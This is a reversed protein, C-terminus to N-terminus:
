KKPIAVPPSVVTTPSKTTSSTAANPKPPEEKKLLDSRDKLLSNLTWNSVVYTWKGYAQEKALKEKLKDQKDKFEKDLKAKDEPKEKEGAKREKPLDAKVDVKLYYKDGDKEKAADINYTFGDFTEITIHNGNKFDIDGEKKDVVVDDFSPSSLAYNFSGTKSTDLKEDDKADALKWEGSETERVVKWSNTTTVAISRPKEIKFFDRDLWSSPKPEVSSFTEQVLAIADTKGDPMLYRGDPYGGGAMPSSQASERTHEKGLLLTHLQKGDKDKFTLLTGSNKGKGPDVLELTGLQSAGIKMGRLVKLEWIKTLLDKINSFNAPYGGRDAVTWQDDKKVVNVSNSSGTITIAAVDNLPFDKFVKGGMEQGSEKWSGRDRTVLIVGLGCIIFFAGVLLKFQKSNM